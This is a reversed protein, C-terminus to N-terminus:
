KGYAGATIRVIKKQTYFVKRTDTLNEWFIIGYITISYFDAGGGFFFSKLNGIKVSARFTRAVRCAHVGRSKPFVYEIHAKLNLNISEL